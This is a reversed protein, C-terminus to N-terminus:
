ERWHNMRMRLPDELTLRAIDSLLATPVVIFAVGRYHAAFPVSDHDSACVRVRGVRKVVPLAVCVRGLRRRRLSWRALGFLVGASLIGVAVPFASPVSRLRRSFPAPAALWQVSLRAPAPVGVGVKPGNWVEVSAGWAPAIGAVRWAWPLILALALLVWGVRLWREPARAALVPAWRLLAAIVVAGITLLLATPLYGDIFATLLTTTMM